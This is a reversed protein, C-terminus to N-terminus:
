LFTYKKVSLIHVIPATDFIELNTVKRENFLTNGKEHGKRSM